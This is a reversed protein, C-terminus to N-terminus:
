LDGVLGVAHVREDHGETVRVTLHQGAYPDLVAAALQPEVTDVVAPDPEM